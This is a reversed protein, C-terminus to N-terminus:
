NVEFELSKLIIFKKLEKEKELGLKSLAKPNVV